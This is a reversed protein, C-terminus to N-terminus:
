NSEDSDKESKELKMLAEHILDLLEKKSRVAIYSKFLCTIFDVDNKPDDFPIFIGYGKTNDKDNPVYTCFLSCSMNNKEGIDLFGESLEGLEAVVDSLGLKDAQSKFSTNDTTDDKLPSTFQSLFDKISFFNNGSASDFSDNTNPTSM